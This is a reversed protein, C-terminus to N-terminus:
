AIIGQRRPPTFVGDPDIRRKIAVLRELNAGYYAAAPNALGPDPFNQFSGGDPMLAASADHFERQWALNTAVVAPTDHETWGVDTGTLWEAERHVYATDAPAIDRIRGGVHFMFFAASAKTGPWTRCRRVVDEIAGDSLRASYRSTVQYINPPSAIGLFKQGRWYQTTQMTDTDPPATALAPALIARAEDKPGRLQGFLTLTNPKSEHTRTAHIGIRSGMRDPAGELARVLSAFVAPVNRNWVIRYTTVPKAPEARVKFRLAVGLNGGGGGRLAWFLDTNQEASARVVRGDPLAMEAELVRDCGLGFDRMTFGMGGGLLFASAGVGFCRGHPLAMGGANTDKAAELARYVDSFVVGAELEFTDDNIRRVQRMLGTHIILGTTASCGAYSHGGSRLVMPIGQERCWAIAANTEVADRPRAVGLPVETAYRLNQPRSLAIFDHDGPRVVGGKVKAALARWAQESVARTAPKASTIGARAIRPLLLLSGAGTLLARRSTTSNDPKRRISPM